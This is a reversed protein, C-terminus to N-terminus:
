LCRIKKSAKPSLNGEAVKTLYKAIEVEMRDMIDEYKRLRQLLKQYKKEKKKVLLEPVFGFMKQTRKAFISIEKEAQVLDLEPTSFLGFNIHRLRFEEDDEDKYPVLKIVLKEYYKIFWVMVLTNLINFASHFISLGVPIAAVDTFASKGELNIVVYDVLRLFYPFALVMWFVGLVNFLTHARAARKASVNGVMAAVNATITTGINEGLVMAAAIDFPILGNYCMVITLAMTASSSQIIVTFITGVLIFLLVSFVGMDAFQSVFALIEPYEQMNPVADKLFGLGLFLISFGVVFEGWSRRKMKKSFILPLVFALIPIAIVEMKIKFGLLSVIWATVTTGINAGMIVGIAGTLSLLGANVFSVLMVTTASSSQIVTTVTAGTLIGSFRNGTMKGLIARMKDGAVKQLSDSMLKMGYLFVALSGVLTLIKGIINLTEM